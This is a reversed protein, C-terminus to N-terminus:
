KGPAQGAVGFADILFVEEGPVDSNVRVKGRIPGEYAGPTVSLTVAFGDGSPAFNVNTGQSPQFDVLEVGSVHFPDGSPRTVVVQKRITQGPLVRGIPFIAPTPALEDYITALVPIEHTHEIPEGQGRVRAKAKLLVKPFFRRVGKTPNQENLVVRIKGVGNVAPELISTSVDPTTAKVELLELEPDQCRVTLIMEPQTGRKVLDFNVRSPTVNLFPEIKARITLQQIPAVKSNSRVTITKTQPGHGKPDWVIDIVEGEGPAFSTKKLTTTTCGCSAKVDLIQLTGTGANTFKFGHKLDETDPTSGFDKVPSDFRLVPGEQKDFQRTTPKTQTGQTGPAQNLTRPARRQASNTTEPAAETSCAAFLLCSTGLWIPLLKM